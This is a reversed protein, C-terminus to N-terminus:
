SIFIGAILSGVPELVFSLLSINNGIYLSKTAKM